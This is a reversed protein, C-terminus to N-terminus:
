ALVELTAGIGRDTIADCQPKLEDYSGQKVAYKGQFHIIYACQEAQETSHGCVEILTEIVWEFTNVEDNWVILSYPEDLTTLVDTDEEYHPKVPADIAM